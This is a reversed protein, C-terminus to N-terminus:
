TCIYLKTAVILSSLPPHFFYKSIRQMILKSCNQLSPIHASAGIDSIQTTSLYGRTDKTTWLTYLETHMLTSYLITYYHKLFWSWRHLSLKSCNQVRNFTERYMALRCAPIVTCITCCSGIGYTHTHTHTPLYFCMTLDCLYVYAFCRKLYAICRM